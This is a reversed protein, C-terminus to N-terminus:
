FPLKELPYNLAHLQHSFFFIERWTLILKQSYWKEAEPWGQRDM